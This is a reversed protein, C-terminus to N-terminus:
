LISSSWFVRYICNWNWDKIDVGFFFAEVVSVYKRNQWWKQVSSGLLGWCKRPCRIILVPVCGDTVTIVTHSPWKCCRRRKNKAVFQNTWNKINEKGGSSKLAGQAVATLGIVPKRIQVDTLPFILYFYKTVDTVLRTPSVSSLLQKWVCSQVAIVFSVINWWSSKSVQNFLHYYHRNSM